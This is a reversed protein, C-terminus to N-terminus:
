ADAAPRVGFRQQMRRAHRQRPAAAWAAQQLPLLGLQAHRQAWAHLTPRGQLGAAPLESLRRLLWLDCGMVTADLHVAGAELRLAMAPVGLLRRLRLM